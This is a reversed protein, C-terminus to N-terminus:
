PQFEVSQMIREFQGRARPEDAESAALTIYYSREGTIVIYERALVVVPTSARRQEDIPQVVYAYQTVLAPAASIVTEEDSLLHYGTLLAREEVRRDLLTQLTPPNAPDLDRREVSLTTKFPSAAAPNEVKLLVALLSEGEIWREPFAISFGGDPDSFSRTRSETRAMIVWGIALALLLAVAVGLDKNWLRVRWVTENTPTRIM